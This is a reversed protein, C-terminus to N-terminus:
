PLKATAASGGEQKLLRRGAATPRYAGEGSTAALKKGVLEELAAAVQAVDAAETLGLDCALDAPTSTGFRCLPVLVRRALASLPVAEPEPIPAAAPIGAAAIAAPKLGALYAEVDATRWRVLKRNYRIPPPLQAAEVMRYLTRVGVSLRRATELATLLGAAPGEAARSESPRPRNARPRTLPADEPHFLRLLPVGAAARNGSHNM